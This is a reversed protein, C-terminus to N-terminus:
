PALLAFAIGVALGGAISAANIRMAKRRDVARAEADEVRVQEGLEGMNRLGAMAFGACFRLRAQILGSFGAALPLAVALRIWAPADLVLLFAGLAIAAGVGLYGTQRRRRIEAPGINCVGPQYEGVQADVYQIM